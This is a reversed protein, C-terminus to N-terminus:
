ESCFTAAGRKPQETARTGLCPPAQQSLLPPPWARRSSLQFSAARSSQSQNLTARVGATQPCSPQPWPRVPLNFSACGHSHPCSLLWRINPSLQHLARLRLCAAPSSLSCTGDQGVQHAVAKNNHLSRPKCPGSGAAPTKGTFTSLARSPCRQTRPQPTSATRHSSPATPPQPHPPPAAARPLM